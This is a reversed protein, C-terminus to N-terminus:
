ILDEKEEKKIDMHDKTSLEENSSVAEEPLKFEDFVDHAVIDDPKVAPVEEPHSQEDEVPDEINDYDFGQYDPGQGFIDEMGGNSGDTGKTTSTSPLVEKKSRKFVVLLVLIVIILILLSGGIIGAILFIPVKEDPDGEDTRDDKLAPINVDIENSRAGEGVDNIAVIYYSYNRGPIVTGDTFTTDNVVALMMHDTTGEMWRYIRYGTVNPGSTPANWILQVENSNFYTRDLGTPADPPDHAPITVIIPATRESRGKNNSCDMCYEYTKGIEVYPDVWITDNLLMATTWEGMENKRYIGYILVPMGNEDEPPDWTLTVGSTRAMARFHLPVTPAWAPMADIETSREGEGVINVFSVQYAYHVGNVLGTDNIHGKGPSVEMYLSGNRYINVKSIDYEQIYFFSSSWNLSVEEDLQGVTILIPQPPSGKPDGVFIESFKGEGYYNLASIRYRYMTGNLVDEDTFEMEETEQVLEFGSGSDRYIRYGTVESGGNNEPASWTLRIYGPGDKLIINIPELPPGFPVGSIPDSLNGEGELNFASIWYTYNVMNAVTTDQYIHTTGNVAGILEKGTTTNRYIRYGVIESGGDEWPPMWSLELMGSDMRISRGRIKGPRLSGISYLYGDSSGFYVNSRDDLCPNEGDIYDDTEFNWYVTGNPYLCYFFNNRCGFYLYGNGDISITSYISNNAKFTWLVQGEPSICYLTGAQTPIYLNGNPDMSPTIRTDDDLDISWKLTGNNKYCAHFRFIDYISGSFYLIGEEDMVPGLHCGAPARVEYIVDGDQELAVLYFQYGTENWTQKLFYINDDEDFCLSYWVKGFMEYKWNLDGDSSYSYIFGDWSGYVINGDNDICPSFITASHTATGSWKMMGNPGVAFLRGRSVTNDIAYITGDEGVAPTNGRIGSTTWLIEGTSSNIAYLGDDGSCYLTGNNGIVPQGDLGVETKWRLNGMNLNMANPNCQTRRMDYGFSPWTQNTESTLSSRTHIDEGNGTVQESIFFGPIILLIVLFSSTLAPKIIRM